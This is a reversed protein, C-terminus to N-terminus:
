VSVQEVRSLRSQKPITMFVQLSTEASFELPWPEGVSVYFGGNYQVEQVLLSQAM